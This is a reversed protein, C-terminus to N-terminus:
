KSLRKVVIKAIEKLKDASCFDFHSRIELYHRGKQLGLSANTGLLSSHKEHRKLWASDGIGSVFVASDEKNYDFMSKAASNKPYIRAEILQLQSPELVNVHKPDFRLDCIAFGELSSDKKTINDRGCIQEIENSHLLKQCYEGAEVCMLVQSLLFVLVFYKLM